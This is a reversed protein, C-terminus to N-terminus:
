ETMRVTLVPVTSLRVVKETVSGLLYRDLGKRGHTGMVICDVDLEDAYDLIIKYPTGHEVFTQVDIGRESAATEVTEVAEVCEDELEDYLIDTRVDPPVITQDVVSIAYLTADFTDALELAQAVANKSSPGGDTPLLIRDYM